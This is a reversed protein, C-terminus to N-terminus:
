YLDSFSYSSLRREKGLIGISLKMRSNRSKVCVKCSRCLDVIWSIQVQHRGVIWFNGIEFSLCGTDLNELYRLIKKAATM